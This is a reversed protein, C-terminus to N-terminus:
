EHNEERGRAAGQRSDECVSFFVAMPSRQSRHGPDPFPRGFPGARCAILHPARLLPELGDQLRDHLREAV